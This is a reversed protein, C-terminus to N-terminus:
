DEKCQRCVGEENSRGYRLYSAVRCAEEPEFGATNKDKSRQLGYHILQAEYFHAVQDKPAKGDLLTKIDGLSARAHRKLDGGVDVLLLNHYVFEGRVIPSTNTNM